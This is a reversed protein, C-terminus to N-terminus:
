VMSKKMMKIMMSMMKIMVEDIKDDNKDDNADNKSWKEVKDNMKQDDMGWKKIMWVENKSWKQRLKQGWQCWKKVNIADVEDDYGESKWRGVWTITIGCTMKSWWRM